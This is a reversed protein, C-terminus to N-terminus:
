DPEPDQSKFREVSKFNFETQELSIGKEVLSKEFNEKEIKLDILAHHNNDLQYMQTLGLHYFRMIKMAEIDDGSEAAEKVHRLVNTIYMLSRKLRWGYMAEAMWPKDAFFIKVVAATMLLGVFAGIFNLVMLNNSYEGFWRVFASAMLFGVVLFNAMVIITAKKTKKRYVVPDIEKIKFM